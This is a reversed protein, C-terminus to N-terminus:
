ILRVVLYAWEGWLILISKLGLSLLSSVDRYHGKFVVAFAGHGIIAKPDYVFDVVPILESSMVADVEFLPM